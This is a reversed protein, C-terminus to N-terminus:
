SRLRKLILSVCFILVMIGVIVGSPPLNYILSVMVGLVVSLASLLSSLLLALRFSGALNLSTMAPIVMLSSTLIVGVAKVGLVVVATTASVLLHDLLTVRVGRVKAIDRDFSILLLDRYRLFVLFLTGVSVAGVLLLDRDSVMLISGFLYGFVADGFGEVVGVMLVALAAGGSFVLALLADGPIRGSSTLVQLTNAVVLLLGLTFTFPELRLLFGLAVGGFAAHSLSAGLFAMRRLILFVGTVGSALSILVGAILGRQVFDYSLLDTM